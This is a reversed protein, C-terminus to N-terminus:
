RAGDGEIVVRVTRALIELDRSLSWHRVYAYDLQMRESWEVDSRGTVQWLGTIGPRELMRTREWPDLAEVEFARLPRPGVLSMDGRLVNILQPLEDLSTRRIFRGVPTIRPDVAGKIHQVAAAISLEGSQVADIRARDLADADTRMSRFKLIDFPQEDRGVRRQRYLVPGRDGLKILVAIVLLAPLCALLMASSLVVDLGRKALRQIPLPRRPAISVLPMGGLAYTGADTSLYDFLRPVVDVQVGHSDCDRIMQMTRLDSSRSFAVIVREVGHHELLRHLDSAGGLWPLQGVSEPTPDDDVYGILHLRGEGFREVLATLRSAIAGSGLIVVAEPRRREHRLLLARTATWGIVCCAWVAAIDAFGNPWGAAAAAAVFAWGAAAAAFCLRMVTRIRAGAGFSPPEYVGAGAIAVPGAVAMAAVVLAPAGILVGAAAGVALDLM